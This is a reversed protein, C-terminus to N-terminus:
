VPPATVRYLPSLLEKEPLVCCNMASPLVCCNMTSLMPRQVTAGRLVDREPYEVGIGPPEAKYATPVGEAVAARVSIDEWRLTDAKGTAGLLGGVPPTERIDECRFMDSIDECCFTGSIDVWCFTGSIDVCCFTGRTDRMDECCFMGSIDPAIVGIGPPM